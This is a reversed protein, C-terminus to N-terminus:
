NQKAALYIMAFPKDPLAVRQIVTMTAADLAMLIEEDPAAVYIRDHNLAFAPRPKGDPGKPPEIEQVVPVAALMDGNALSLRRLVGDTTLVLVTEGAADFSFKVPHAPLPLIRMTENNPDIVALGHGFNGLVLANKPHTAFLGVRTRPPADKPNDLKVAKFSDGQQKLLLVGDGCGFLATTGVQAAGHLVPCCDFSQIIQGGRYMDVQGLRLHGALLNEGIIVASGHDPQTAKIIQPPQTMAREDFVSVSGSGDNFIVVQHEHAHFHTPEQETTVVAASAFEGDVITVCHNDRHIAFGYRGSSSAGLLATRGPTEFTRITTLSAADVLSLYPLEHHAILLYGTM